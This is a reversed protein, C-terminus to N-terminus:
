DSCLRPRDRPLRIRRVGLGKPYIVRDDKVIALSVSPIGLEKGKTDITKEIAALAAPLRRRAQIPVIHRVLLVIASIVAGM